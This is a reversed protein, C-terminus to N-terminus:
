GEAEDSVCGGSTLVIIIIIGTGGTTPLPGRRVLGASIRCFIFIILRRHNLMPVHVERLVCVRRSRTIPVNRTVVVAICEGAEVRALAAAAHANVPIRHAALVGHTDVEGAVLVARAASVCTGPQVAFATEVDVVILIWDRAPNGALRIKRDPALISEPLGERAELGRRAALVDTDARSALAAEVLVAGSIRAALSAVAASIHAHPRATHAAIDVPMGSRQRLVDVALLQKVAPVMSGGGFVVSERSKGYLLSSGRCTLLRVITNSLFSIPGMLRRLL